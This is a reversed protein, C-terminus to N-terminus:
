PVEPGRYESMADILRRALYDAFSARPFLRYTPTDDVQWLPVAVPGVTTSV